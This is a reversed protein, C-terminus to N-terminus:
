HSIHKRLTLIKTDKKLLMLRSRNSDSKFKGMQILTKVNLVNLGYVKEIYQKIEPKTAKLDTLAVLVKPSVKNSPKKFQMKWNLFDEVRREKPM